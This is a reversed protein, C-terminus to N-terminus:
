NIVEIRQNKSHEKGNIVVSFFIDYFGTRSLPIERLNQINFIETNGKPFLYYRIKDDRFFNFVEDGNEYKINFTFDTAEIGRPRNIENNLYAIFYLLDNRQFVPVTFHSINLNRFDNDVSDTINLMTHIIKDLSKIDFIADYNGATFNEGTKIVIVERQMEAIRVNGFSLPQKHINKRDKNIRLEGFIENNFLEKSFNEIIFVFEPNEESLYFNEDAYFNFTLNHDYNFSKSLEINKDNYKFSSKVNYNGKELDSIKEEKEIDFLLLRQYAELSVEIEDNFIFEFIIENTETKLVIINFNSIIFNKPSNSTNQINIRHNINDPYNFREEGVLIFNVGDIIKSFSLDFRNFRDGFVIFFIALMSVMILLIGTIKRINKLNKRKNASRREEDRKEWEKPDKSFYKM